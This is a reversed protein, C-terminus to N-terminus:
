EDKNWSQAWWVHSIWINSRDIVIFSHQWGCLNSIHGIILAHLPGMPATLPVISSLNNISTSIALENMVPTIFVVTNDGLLKIKQCIFLDGACLFAIVLHFLLPGSARRFCPPCQLFLLGVCILICRSPISTSKGFVSSFYYHNKLFCWYARWIALKILALITFGFM